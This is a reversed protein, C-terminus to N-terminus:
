LYIVQFAFANPSNDVIVTKRLDRGLINLDKVLIPNFSLCSNRYLRYKILKKEPDLINIVKDAYIKESATFIVIEFNKALEQM